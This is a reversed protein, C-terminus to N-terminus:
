PTGGVEHRASGEAKGSCWVRWVMEGDVWRFEARYEHGYPCRLPSEFYRMFEERVMSGNWAGDRCVADGSHAGREWPWLDRQEGAALRDAHYRTVVNALLRVNGDCTRERAATVTQAVVPAALFMLVAIIALLLEILTFGRQNRMPADEAKRLEYLKVTPDADGELSEAHCHLTAVQRGNAEATFEVKFCAPAIECDGLMVSPKEGRRFSLRVSGM